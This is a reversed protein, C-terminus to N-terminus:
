KRGQDDADYSAETTEGVRAGLERRSLGAKLKEDYGRVGRVCIVM